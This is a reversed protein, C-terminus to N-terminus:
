TGIRTYGEAHEEFKRIGAYTLGAVEDWVEDDVIIKTGKVEAHQHGDMTARVTTYFVKVLELYFDRSLEMFKVLGQYELLAPFLFGEDKFWQTRIFKPVIIEKNGFVGAYDKKHREETFWTNLRSRPPAESSESM